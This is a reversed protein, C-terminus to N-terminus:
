EWRLRHGRGGCGRTVGVGGRDGKLLVALLLALDLLQMVGSPRVKSDWLLGNGDQLQNASHVFQVREVSAGDDCVAPLLVCMCSLLCTHHVSMRIYARIYTHVIYTFHMHTFTHSTSLCQPICM